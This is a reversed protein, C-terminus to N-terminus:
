DRKKYYNKRGIKKVEISDNALIKCLQRAYTVSILLYQAIQKATVPRKRELIYKEVAALM